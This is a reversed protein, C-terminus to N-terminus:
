SRSVPRASSRWCRTMRASSPGTPATGNKLTDLDTEIRNLRRYLERKRTLLIDKYGALDTVIAMERTPFGAVFITGANDFPM